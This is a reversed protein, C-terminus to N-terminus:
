QMIGNTEGGSKQTGFKFDFFYGMADSIHTLDPQTKDLQGTTNGNLDRKWRVNTLDKRLMKCKPDITARSEGLANRFMGNVTNIRDKIAPAKKKIFLKVDFQQERKFFNRIIDYDSGSTQSTHRASAAPDGYIELRVPVTGCIEKFRTLAAECMDLTGAESLCLEDLIEVKVLKEGTLYARPGLWERYQGIVTCFPDRNFDLTWVLPLRPDRVCPKVHQFEKFESYVNGLGATNGPRQQYLSEWVIASSHMKPKLAEWPWREPWLVDGCKRGLPCPGEKEAKEDYLAPLSIVHWPEAGQNLIRGALDDSTWRTLVVVIAGGGVRKNKKMVAEVRTYATSLWWNWQRERMSFSSAEDWNKIPDDILLLHAGRGTIGGGIGATTMGGGKDTRWKNAALKDAQLRFSLLSEHKKALDRVKAGWEAAFDAGYGCNIVYREPWNELFWLPTFTSILHSNHVVFDDATFTHDEDVELCRCEHTQSVNEINVIKDSVYPASNFSTDSLCTLRDSLSLKAANVWGRPTLFPHDLAAIVARGSETEIRLVPLPGQEFIRTVKRSRGLHSIVEENVEIDGLRKREGSGMLVLSDVSVPKGHRPPMQVILRGGSVVTDVVADSLLKLHPAPDYGEDEPALKM